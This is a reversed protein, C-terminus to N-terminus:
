FGGIREQESNMTQRTVRIYRRAVSESIGMAESIFRTSYGMEGLLTGFTHRGYHTRLPFKLKLLVGLTKLHLNASQETETFTLGNDQIYTLIKDLSKFVTLDLYVPTKTKTTRVKFKRRDILKEVEFKHWDSVRIGAYCEVLFFCATNRLAPEGDLEGKYVMDALKQTQELTLYHTEPEEYRVMEFADLPNTTILKKRQALRVIQTLKKLKKHITTPAYGTKGNEHKFTVLKRHYWDLFDTTIKGFPYHDTGTIKKFQALETDWIALTGSAKKGTAKLHEVQAEYFSTFSASTKAAAQNPDAVRKVIEKIDHITLLQGSSAAILTDRESQSVISQVRRNLIDANKVDPTIRGDVWQGVTVRIDTQYYTESGAGRISIAVPCLGQKDAKRKWLGAKITFKM